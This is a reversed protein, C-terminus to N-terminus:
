DSDDEEDTVEEDESEEIVDEPGVELDEPDVPEDPEVDGKPLYAGGGEREKEETAKVFDCLELRREKLFLDLRAFSVPVGDERDEPLYKKSDKKEYTRGKVYRLTHDM